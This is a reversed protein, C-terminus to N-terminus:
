REEKREARPPLGLEIEDAEDTGGKLRRQECVVDLASELGPSFRDIGRRRSEALDARFAAREKLSEFRAELYNARARAYEAAWVLGSARDAEPGPPKPLDIEMSKRTYGGRPDLADCAAALLAAKRTEAEEIMRWRDLDGHEPETM